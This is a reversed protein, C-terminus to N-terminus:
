KGVSARREISHRLVARADSLRDASFGYRKAM